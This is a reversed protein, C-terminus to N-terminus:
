MLVFNNKISEETLDRGFYEKFLDVLQLACNCVCVCLRARTFARDHHM